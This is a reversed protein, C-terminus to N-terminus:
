AACPDGTSLVRRALRGLSRRAVVARHHIRGGLHTPFLHIQQLLRQERAWLQKYPELGWLMDFEAVGEEIAARITLAMLVLGVSQPKYQEDFGHQYFYFRGNYTFGYMVAAIAGNM